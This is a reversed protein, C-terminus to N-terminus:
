YHVFPARGQVTCTLLKVPLATVAFHKPETAYGSTEEGIAEMLNASEACWPTLVGYLTADDNFDWKLLGDPKM